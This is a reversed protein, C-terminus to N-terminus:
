FLTSELSESKSTQELILRILINFYESDTFTRSLSWFEEFNPFSDVGAIGIGPIVEFRISLAGLFQSDTVYINCIAANNHICSFTLCNPPSGFEIVRMPWPVPALRTDSSIIDGTALVPLLKLTKKCGWIQVSNQAPTRTCGLIAYPSRM